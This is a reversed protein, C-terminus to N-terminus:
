NYLFHTTLQVLEGRARGDVARRSQRRFSLLQCNNDRRTAFGLFRVGCQTNAYDIGDTIQLRQLVTYYVRTYQHLAFCCVVHQLINPQSAVLLILHSSHM